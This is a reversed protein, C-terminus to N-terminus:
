ISRSVRKNQMRFKAVQSRRGVILNSGFLTIILVLVAAVLPQLPSKEGVQLPFDIDYPVGKSDFHARIIYKGDEKFLFGQRYIGDDILQTGLLEERDSFLSDDIVSYTVTGTFSDNEDIAQIYLNIRGPQNSKPFAPFVMYTVYFDGIQIEIAM